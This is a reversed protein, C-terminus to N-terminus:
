TIYYIAHYISFPFHVKCEICYTTYDNKNQYRSVEVGKHKLFELMLYNQKMTEMLCKKILQFLTLNSVKANRALNWSLCVMPVISQYQRLKNWEYREMALQYQETTFPGVNWAINNCWGISHVWHVCGVNVWVIDGPKQYFRYVPVNKEQLVKLDPPWWSDRLYDIGNQECFKHIVGWYEHPVAFWECDGPGVNINM